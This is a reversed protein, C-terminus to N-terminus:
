SKKATLKTKLINYQSYLILSSLEFTNSNIKKQTTINEIEHVMLIMEKQKYEINPNAKGMRKTERNHYLLCVVYFYVNLSMENGM